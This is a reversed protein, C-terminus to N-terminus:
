SPDDDFEAWVADFLPRHQEQYQAVSVLHRGVMDDIQPPPTGHLAIYRRKLAKGFGPAIKKVASGALGKGDLYISVTLPKTLSDFEPVEGMARAALRRSQADWYGLDGIGANHFIAVVEAAAKVRKIEHDIEDLQVATARPNIAGGKTWYKEVADAVEAQYAVLRDKVDAAVRNEDITALLMLFTRVDCTVMDRVKGDAAVVAKPVTTAWSRERLKRIQAWYDLGISEVAPKVVIYPKGDVDIALIEDGHFPIHVLENTGQSM